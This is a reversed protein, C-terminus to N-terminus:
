IKLFTRVGTRGDSSSVEIWYPGAPWEALPLDFANLAPLTQLLMRRGLRDFVALRILPAEPSEIRLSRRAPSPYTRLPLPAAAQRAATTLKIEATNATVLMSQGLPNIVLMSSPAVQLSAVHGPPFANALVLGVTCLLRPKDLAPSGKGAVGLEVRGPPVARALAFRAAAGAVLLADDPPFLISTLSDQVLTEDFELAFAVGLPMLGPPINPPPLFVVDLWVTDGPHAANQQFHLELSAQAPLNANPPSYPASPPYTLHHASDYHLQIAEVDPQDILGNGDSDAFALDVKTAPLFINWPHFPKAAWQAGQYPPDRPPGEVNYAMGIALVDLNNVLGDNNADGPCVAFSDVKQFLVVDDVEVDYDFTRELTDLFLVKGVDVKFDRYATDSRVIVEVIIFEVTGLHRDFALRPAHRGAAAFEATGPPLGRTDVFAPAAAAFLLDNGSTDFRIRILSDKVLAPDFDLTFAVGMPSNAAPLANPQKYYIDLRVTDNVGATDKDFVFVLKPRATTPAPLNPAYKKPSPLSSNQTSDYNIEVAQLDATNVIGDGNADSFVANVGTVPLSGPWSTFAKPAWNTAPDSRPPGTKGYNLAIALLDVHNALGDNNADGPYLIGNFSQASLRLPLLALLLIWTKM